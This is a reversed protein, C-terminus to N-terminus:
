RPPGRIRREGVGPYFVFFGGDIQDRSRTTVLTSSEGRLPRGTKPEWPLKLEVQFGPLVPITDRPKNLPLNGEGKGNPDM